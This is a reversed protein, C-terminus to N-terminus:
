SAGLCATIADGDRAVRAEGLGDICRLDDPSRVEAGAIAELCHGPLVVQVDIGRAAATEARWKQLAVERRRRLTGDMGTRESEFYHREDPPVDGDAEGSRVAAIWGGLAEEDRLGGLVMSKMRELSHPRRRAIDVLAANSLVRGSPLDRAEALTEREAALRRLVARGAADLGHRGKVKAYPLREDDADRLARRLAYGTEEVVEDAILRARADADLERHLDHLHRVDGALYARLGDDLPRKAWDYQQFKKDLAVGLRQSLLTALGTERLGLFRAHVSTDVVRGLTIGAGRLLWADFYLDHLIKVPGAAGLVEGLAERLPLALTDFIFVEGDPLACQLVCLRSKWHHLGDSECDIALMTAEALRRAVAPLADPHDILHTDAPV